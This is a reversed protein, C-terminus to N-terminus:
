KELIGLVKDFDEITSKKDADSLDSKLVKHVLAITKATSLDDNIYSLFEQKLKEDVRGGDPYTSLQSNIKEWTKQVGELTQWTFNMPSHYSGTLLWLRYALPHINHDTLDKLTYFNNKSKSMKEGEVTIFANHLWFNAFTKGTASESQARENTHHVSIHDEGGSHIDITEGLLDMSMASCELHWGPFGVGWPTQWEQLRDDEPKSFKWLAFDSSNRKETNTNM